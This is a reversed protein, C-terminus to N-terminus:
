VFCHKKRIAKLLNNIINLYKGVYYIIENEAKDTTIYLVILPTPVIKIIKEIKKFYNLNGLIASKRFTTISQHGQVKKLFFKIM